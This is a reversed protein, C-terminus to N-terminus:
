LKVQLRLSLAEGDPRINYNTLGVTQTNIANLMFKVKKNLYYNIGFVTTDIDISSNKNSSGIHISQLTSKRLTLEWAGM